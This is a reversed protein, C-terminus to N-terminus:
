WGEDVGGNGRWIVMEIGEGSEVLEVVRGLWCTDSVKAVVVSLM